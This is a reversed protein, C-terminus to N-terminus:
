KGSKELVFVDSEVLVIDMPFRTRGREPPVMSFRMFPLAKQCIRSSWSMGALVVVDRGGNKFHGGIKRRNFCLL